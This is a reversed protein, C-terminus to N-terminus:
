GGIKIYGDDDALAKLDEVEEDSLHVNLPKTGPINIPKVVNPLKDHDTIILRNNTEEIREFEELSAGSKLPITDDELDKSEKTPIDLGKFDEEIDQVTSCYPCQVVSSTALPLPAGCNCCNTLIRIKHSIGILEDDMKLYLRKTDSAYIFSGNPTKAKNKYIDAITGRYCHLRDM